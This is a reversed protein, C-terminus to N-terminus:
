RGFGFGFWGKKAEQKPEGKGDVGSGPADAKQDDRERGRGPYEIYNSAFDYFLPKVPIPQIKPPYTVLNSLDAGNAPYEDLREIMPLATKSEAEAAKVMEEQLGHLEVLARHRHVLSGLLAYLSSTQTPTVELKPPTSPPDEPVASVPLQPCQELARAFLALANKNNSLLAHSRAIALCRLASFYRRKTDLEQVFAQDAAVGPLGKVSDLSQLIADYLVVRERLRTLKRGTGEEQAKRLKGDKRPRRPKRSSEDELTAGDRSGCLVRNRGVRWGVLAYNVATRTIQLAQVRQDGPSVGENSLEDLATKTSDVADQSPILVDDYAAAKAKSDLDPNSSLFSSLKAEAASVAALAQATSADELNVERSRWRITKPVNQAGEVSSRKQGPRGASLADPDARLVEQIYENDERPVYRTVISDITTTRPLKFQYAAYRISPDITTSLLDRFVGSRKANGSKALATYLVRSESYEQLCRQWSRKEFEVAGRLSVFYARAEFLDDQASGSGARDKLLEVLHQAYTSAKHLRSNIHQRTSGTIAKIGSDASHTSKM